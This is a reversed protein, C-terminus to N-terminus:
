GFTDAVAGAAHGMSPHGLNAVKPESCFSRTSRTSIVTACCAAARPQQWWHFGACAVAASRTGAVGLQLAHALPVSPSFAAPCASAASRAPPRM